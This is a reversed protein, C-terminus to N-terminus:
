EGSGNAPYELDTALSLPWRNKEKVTRQSEGMREDQNEVIEHM